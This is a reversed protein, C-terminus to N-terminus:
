GPQLTNFVAMLRGREEDTRITPNIVKSERLVEIIELENRSLLPQKFISEEIVQWTEPEYQSMVLTFLYLADVNLAKAIAGIRSVPLKSKGQKFMTIINANGFGCEKAIELQAKGCLDIQATLYEAVTPRKRPPKKQATEPTHM